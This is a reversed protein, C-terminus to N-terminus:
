LAGRISFPLCSNSLFTGVRFNIADMLLSMRLIALAVAEVALGFFLYSKTVM